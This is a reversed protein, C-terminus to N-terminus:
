QPMRGVPQVDGLVDMGTIVLKFNMYKVGGDVFHGPLRRLVQGSEACLTAVAEFRLILVLDLGDGGAYEAGDVQHGLRDLLSFTM